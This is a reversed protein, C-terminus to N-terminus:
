SFHHSVQQRILRTEVATTDPTDARDLNPSFKLNTDQFRTNVKAKASRVEEALSSTRNVKAVTRAFINKAKGTAKETICSDIIDEVDYVTGRIQREWEKFLEDKKYKGPAARLIARLTRLDEKLQELEGKASSILDYKYKVLNSLNELLFQVPADMRAQSPVDTNRHITIIAQLVLVQLLIGSHRVKM